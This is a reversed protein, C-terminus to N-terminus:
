KEVRLWQVADIIVHGDTGTNSVEVIATGKGFEFTGLSIWLGDIPPPKRQDVRVIKGAVNVPVNGARNPLATYALRVEYKGPAPLTAKFTARQAGQRQNGDHSYGSGVYPSAATSNTAFGDKEAESDDVVVGPLKDKLVPPKGPSPAPSVFDLVQKDALLRSKLASKDIIQISVGADIALSAATAASQGLVMFVPEM